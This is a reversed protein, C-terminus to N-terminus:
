VRRAGRFKAVLHVNTDEDEDVAVEKYVDQQLSGYTTRKCSWNSTFREELPNLFQLVKQDMDNEDYTVVSRWM